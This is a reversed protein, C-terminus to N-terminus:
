FCVCSRGSGTANDFRPNVISNYISGFSYNLGVNFFYQYGSQLEKQALLLEEITLDGGAINIQDHTIAYYGNINFNLGKTLRIQTGMNFGMSNLDFDHLYTNYDIGAYINGWKKVLNGNFDIKTRWLWEDTKNYITREFYMNYISGTQLSLVLRRKSSERYPFLSYELGAFLEYAQKYNSYRSRDFRTFVGYSWHDNIGLIESLNINFFERNSVIIDNGYRYTQKGRNYRSSFSFKNMEKIQKASVYTTYNSYDGNSSGNLWGNIGVNFVWNNWGDQETKKNEPIDLNLQLKDALGNKMWFKMLGFKLYKLLLVRFEDQTSDAGTSFSYKEQIERYDNQGFFDLHFTNGGSGNGESVMQIHVDAFNRDRVFEVEPLNQRIYTQECNWTQCDYFIKIKGGTDQARLFPSFLLISTFILKKM